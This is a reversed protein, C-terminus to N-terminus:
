IVSLLFIDRIAVIPLELQSHFIRRLTDILQVLLISRIESNQFDSLNLCYLEEFHTKILIIHFLSVVIIM